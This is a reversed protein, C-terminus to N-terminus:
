RIQRRVVSSEGAAFAPFASRADESAFLPDGAWDDDLLVRLFLRTQDEPLGVEIHHRTEPPPM